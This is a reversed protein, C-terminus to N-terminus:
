GVLPRGSKPRLLNKVTWDMPFLTVVQDGFGDSDGSGVVGARALARAQLAQALRYGAPVEQGELPPAFAECQTRAAQLYLDLAEDALDLCGPWTDVLGSDSRDRDALTFWGM